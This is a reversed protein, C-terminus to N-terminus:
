SRSEGEENLKREKRKDRKPTNQKFHLPSKPLSERCAAQQTAPLTKSSSQGELGVARASSVHTSHQLVSWRAVLRQTDEDCCEDWCVLTASGVV